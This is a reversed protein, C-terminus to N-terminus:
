FVSSSAEHNECGVTKDCRKYGFLCAYLHWEALINSGVIELKELWHFLNASFDVQLFSTTM